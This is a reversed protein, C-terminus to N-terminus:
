GVGAQADCASLGERGLRTITRLPRRCFFSFTTLLELRTKEKLGMAEKIVEWYGKKWPLPHPKEQEARVYDRNAKITIHSRGEIVDAPTVGQLCPRPIVHNMIYAQKLKAAIEPSDLTLLLQGKQVREGERVIVSELRGAIKSSVKVQTAEVEGQLIPPEPKMFFWGAVGVMVLSFAIILIIGLKGATKMM